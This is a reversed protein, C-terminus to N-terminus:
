RVGCLSLGEFMDCPTSSVNVPCVVAKHARMILVVVEKGSTAEIYEMYVNQCHQLMGEKLNFLCYLYIPCIKFAEDLLAIIIHLSISHTM